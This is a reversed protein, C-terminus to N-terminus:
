FPLEGDENGFDPVFGEPPESADEDQAKPKSDGFYVHEAVIETSFRKGGEQDTWPHIQLRGEVIAMRGKTFYKAVNDALKRWVVVDVFDTEKEGDKTKFDRDCAIRFSCVSIEGAKRLEPDKTLRGAMVIHNLM